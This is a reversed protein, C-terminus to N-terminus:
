NTALPKQSIRPLLATIKEKGSKVMNQLGPFHRPLTRLVGAKLRLPASTGALLSLISFFLHEREAPTRAQIASPTYAPLLQLLAKRFAQRNTAPISAAHVPLGSPRTCVATKEPLFHVNTRAAIYLWRLYDSITQDLTTVSRGPLYERRFVTTGSQIFNGQLLEPFIDGSPYRQQHTKVPSGSRPQLEIDTYVLGYDPQAELFAVQKKLKLPDTWRTDSNCIAIYKGRCSSLTRIANANAGLKVTAPLLRIRDPYRQAYDECIARTQDRSCDDGIVLETEFDAEQALVGEIIAAVSDEAQYVAMSISVLPTKTNM